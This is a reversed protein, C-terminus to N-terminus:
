IAQSLVTTNPDQYRAYFAKELWERHAPHAIGVLAQARQKLNKGFLDVRGYETVVWHVHGRTTVVSAGEKLFPVIRSLGTSTVSPMAIIPLGGESLSAGHIFDMQGGIGSYQYIGMSDACIQGTLDIEIASNIAAVRPNQRIIATDNVYAIDMVRIEPNDDVFDFLRRTGNIFSTVSKGPNLKKRRNNIVGAEILGIVGDSFMETHLGLDKHDYLNRLVQDPIHGIGMQLTAGDPILSAVNEGIREVIPTAEGGYNVEPLAMDQWVLSDIKSVHVFGDGHTRPMRPNVLAIIHRACDVAARTIDVSTGLTCFGHKDPPSVQIMAVDIPLIGRRFLQPIQSLFIPVYDGDVSNAVKRNCASVFLSNVFFSGRWLPNDFDLYGMLTISVLEVHHIENYRQQLAKVLPVPTAASGHIFVRDGTKVISVAEEASIYNITSM